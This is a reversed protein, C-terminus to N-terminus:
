RNHHLLLPLLHLLPNLDELLLKKLNGYKLCRLYFPVNMLVIALFNVVPVFNIPELLRKKRPNDVRNNPQPILNTVRLPMLNDVKIERTVKLNNIRTIKGRIGERPTLPIPLVRSLMCKTIHLHNNNHCLLHLHAPNFCQHQHLQLM